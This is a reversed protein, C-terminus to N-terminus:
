LERSRVVLVVLIEDFVVTCGAVDGIRVEFLQAFNPDAKERREIVMGFLHKAIAHEVARLHGNVVDIGASAVAALWKAEDGM